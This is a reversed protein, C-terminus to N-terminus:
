FQNKLLFELSNGQGCFEVVLTVRVLIRSSNVKKFLYLNSIMAYILILLLNLYYKSGNHLHNRRKSAKQLHNLTTSEGAQCHFLTQMVELIRMPPWLTLVWPRRFILIRLLSLDIHRAIRDRSQSLTLTDQPSRDELDRNMGAARGYLSSPVRWCICRSIRTKNGPRAAREALGPGAWPHAWGQSLVWCLRWQLSWKPNSDWHRSYM